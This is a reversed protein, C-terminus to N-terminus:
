LTSIYSDLMRYAEDFFHSGKYSSAYAAFIPAPQWKPSDKFLLKSVNYKKWTKRVRPASPGHGDNVYGAYHRWVRIHVSDGHVAAQVSDYMDGTDIHGHRSISGRVYSKGKDAIDQPLQELWKITADVTAM